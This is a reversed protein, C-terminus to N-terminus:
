VKRLWTAYVTCCRGPSNADMVEVIWARAESDYLQYDRVILQQGNHVDKNRQEEESRGFVEVRDGVLFPCPKKLPGVYKVVRAELKDVKEQLRQEVAALDYFSALQFLSLVLSSIVIPWPESRNSFMSLLRGIDGVICLEIVEQHHKGFINNQLRRLSEDVADVGHMHAMQRMMIIGDAIEDRWQEPSDRKQKRRGFLTLLEGLEGIAVAEQEAHGWTQTAAICVADLNDPLKM